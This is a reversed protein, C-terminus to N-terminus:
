VHRHGEGAGDNTQAAVPVALRSTTLLAVALARCALWQVTSM